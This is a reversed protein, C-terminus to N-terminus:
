VIDSESTAEQIDSSFYLSMPGFIIFFNILIFVSISSHADPQKPVPYTATVSGHTVGIYRQYQVGPQDWTPSVTSRRTTALGIVQMNYM